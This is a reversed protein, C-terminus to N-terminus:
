VRKYYKSNYDGEWTMSHLTAPAPHSSKLHVSLNTNRDYAPITHIYDASIGLSSASYSDWEISEYTKTYDSRGKRKLTVDILGVTGFTFNLRHVILSGRTESRVSTGQKRQVYVTPLEVEMEYLYGLVIDQGTWDGPFTIDSGDVTGESYRGKNSGTKHCYVALQSSSNYGTPKTFKTKNTITSYSLSGSAIVSKTDLHIKYAETDVLTTDDEKKLDISELTYNSSNKIIAYYVDDMITHFTVTGPLIWKFWASQVRKQGQNFYRYGWVENNDQTGFLVMNNETSAAPLNIDDPFLKSIVKSQEAVDPESNRQVNIMEYFRSNKATSNIFGVTVGLSVPHTKENFAYSSLYSIRATEPTMLSEDTSLLFQENASFMLLGNNVEIADYLAAPHTSSSQLDIPDANSITFATKAWFNFYDNTRSLIANEASLFGLRSRYYFVKNITNGVFSPKPNTINDGVDRDDWEPYEFRFIGNAYHAAAAGNISYSGYILTQANNGTGTLNIATGATANASNTALKITNADVKIVYYNTADTLGALTTGGGNKYLVVDGTSRGHSTATIQENSTNVASTAITYQTSPLGRNLRLPMTDRDFKIDLDPAACEEWTGTGFRSYPTITVTEGASITGSASDTVEFTNTTKNAVTYYGDTAGGSTFDAIIKDGNELGHATATITVTTGARAYTGSQDIDIETGEAKFKLYYDDEEEGSNVVKVVYGHRCAKPLETIDNASTTIIDMLQGEATTLQFPTARHLHLGNGCITTTIGTGSIADLANKIGSIITESAVIENGDASTSPPRVLAVNARATISTHSLVKVTTSSGKSNTHAHEDGTSWGEGGCQLKAYGQYSDEYSSGNSVPVCRIDIEYRLNSKGGSSANPPSTSGIATGSSTNNPPVSMRHQGTCKGNNSYGPISGTGVPNKCEVSTATNYSITSNDDPDFIDLSYQKGYAVSRISIFAENIAVNTKDTSTSSMEVTKTRNTFLVTENLNLPQIEDSNTHILYTALNSGAVNAYDVPIEVGDSCRWVKIAGTTAVQGIFRQGEEDARYIYFWKGSAAPTVASVLDSGPRKMLGRTIDPLGNKLNVVQGPSKLEDPQESMGLIYNPVQQTVSTM